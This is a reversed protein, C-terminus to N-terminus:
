LLLMDLLSDTASEAQAEKRNKMKQSLLYTSMEVYELDSAVSIAQEYAEDSLHEGWADLAKIENLCNAQALVYLLTGNHELTESPKLDEVLTAITAVERQFWELEHLQALLVHPAERAIFEYIEAPCRPVILAGIFDYLLDDGFGNEGEHEKHLELMFHAERLCIRGDELDEESRRDRFKRAACIVYARFIDDYVVNDVLGAVLIERVADAAKQMSFFTEYAPEILQEFGTYPRFIYTAPTPDLPNLFLYTSARTLASRTFSTDPPLMVSMQEPRKIPALLDVGEHEILWKAVHSHGSRLALVLAFSRYVYFDCASCLKQVADLDGAACARELLDCSEILNVPYKEDILRELLEDVKLSTVSSPDAMQEDLAERLLNLTPTDTM